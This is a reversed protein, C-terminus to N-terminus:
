ADEFGAPVAQRPGSPVACVVNTDIRESAAILLDMSPYTMPIRPRPEWGYARKIPPAMVLMLPGMSGIVVSFFIAPKEHAAWRLYRLPTRFFHPYASSHPNVPNAPGGPPLNTSTSM